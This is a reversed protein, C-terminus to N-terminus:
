LYMLVCSVSFVCALLQLLLQLLYSRSVEKNSGFFSSLICLNVANCPGRYTAAARVKKLVALGEKLKVEAEAWKREEMLVEAWGLCCAASLGDESGRQEVM